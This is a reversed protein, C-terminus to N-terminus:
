PRGMKREGLRQLLLRQFDREVNYLKLLKKPPLVDKLKLHYEKQLDVLKQAHRIYGDALDSADKDSMADANNRFKQNSKMFDQNLDNKESNYQNYIPWFKQAEETTLQLQDTFFAVKQADIRQRQPANGFNRNQANGTLVSLLSVLLALCFIQLKNM